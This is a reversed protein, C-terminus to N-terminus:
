GNLNTVNQFVAVTCHVKRHPDGQRCFVVTMVFYMNDVVYDITDITALEKKSSKCVTYERVSIDYDLLALIADRKRDTELAIAKTVPPALPRPLAVAERNASCPALTMM